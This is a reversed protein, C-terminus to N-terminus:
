PNLRAIWQRPISLDYVSTTKFGFKLKKKTFAQKLAQDIWRALAIKDLEMHNSKFTIADKVKEFTTKFSKFYSVDLPQLSDSTHSSEFEQTLLM